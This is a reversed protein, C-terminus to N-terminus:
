AKAVAAQFGSPVRGFASLDLRSLAQAAPKKSEKVSDVFGRELAEQANMWTEAAMLAIVEDRDIGTRGVSATAINDRGKDLLDAMARMDDADGLGISWPNHIMVMAHPAIRIEDAAMIIVSAMSAALGDIDAEVRASSESLLQYIAFGDIVDGGGSNVRLK